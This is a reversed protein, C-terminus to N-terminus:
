VWGLGLGHGRFIYRPLERSVAKVRMQRGRRERDEVTVRRPYASSFAFHSLEFTEALDDVAVTFTAM